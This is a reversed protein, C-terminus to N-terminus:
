GHPDSATPSARRTHRRSSSGTRRRTSPSACRMTSSARPWRDYRVLGPLIPLGAADASTWTDPRLANSGLDFVAGSAADWGGGQQHAGYMEYLHCNGSDIVLVHADSGSESPRPSRCRTRAPTARAATRRSTIPVTPQTGPVVVYPIGYTPDSGFDPHLFQRFSDIRGVYTASHPRATGALHGREVCEHLPVGRLGRHDPRLRPAPHDPRAHGAPHSAADHGRDGGAPHRRHTRTDAGADRDAQTPRRDPARRAHRDPRPRGGRKRWM